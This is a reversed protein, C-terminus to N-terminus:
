HLHPTGYVTDPRSHLLHIDPRTIVSVWQFLYFLDLQPLTNSFRLFQSLSAVRELLTGNRRRAESQGM